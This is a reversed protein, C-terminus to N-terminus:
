HAFTRVFSALIHETNAVLALDRVKRNGIPLKSKQIIRNIIILSSRGREGRGGGLGRGGM